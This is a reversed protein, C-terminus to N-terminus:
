GNNFGGTNNDGKANININGSTSCWTQGRYWWPAYPWQNFKDVYIPYYEVNKAPPFLESLADRLEKADEASLHYDIGKITLVIEKIKNTNMKRTGFYASM